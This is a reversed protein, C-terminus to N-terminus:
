SPTADSGSFTFRASSSATSDTPHGTISTDPAVTDVPSTCTAPTADGEGATDRAQVSFTHSGDGLDSYTKASECAAYSSGDLSCEFHVGSADSASFAFAATSSASPDSPHSTITTSPALTDVTWTASAPSADA